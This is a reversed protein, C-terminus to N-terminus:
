AAGDKPVVTLAIAAKQAGFSFRRKIFTLVHESSKASNCAGCAPVYNALNDPGGCSTPVVHEVIFSRAGNGEPELVCDCYACRGGTLDFVQKRVDPTHKPHCDCEQLAAVKSAHEKMAHDHRACLATVMEEIKSTISKTGQEILLAHEEVDGALGFVDQDKLHGSQWRSLKLAVFALMKAREAVIEAYDFASSIQEQMLERQDSM